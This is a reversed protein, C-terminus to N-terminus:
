LKCLERVRAIFDGDRFRGKLYVHDVNVMTSSIDHASLVIIPLSPNEAAIDSVLTTGSGDPLTFDIIVLDYDRNVFCARAEQM